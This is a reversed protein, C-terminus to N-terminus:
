GGDGGPLIGVFARLSTVGQTYSAALLQSGRLYLDQETYRAKAQSTNSLAEQFSGSQPELDSYSPHHAAAAAAAAPPTSPCKIIYKIYAVLVSGGIIYM